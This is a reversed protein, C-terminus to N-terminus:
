AGMRSEVIANITRIRDYVWALYGQDVDCYEPEEHQYIRLQGQIEFPKFDYELCFLGAYVYLQDFSAKSVGTKLDHIRLFMEGADFSIADTTGYCYMSYMLMQEPVMAYKIADNVYRAIVPYRGDMALTIGDAINRAALDHLRTGRAAAEANALRALLKEESDNLWHYNSPSLVAHSGELRPHSHWEMSLEPSLM